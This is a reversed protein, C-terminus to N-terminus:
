EVVAYPKKRLIEEIAAVIQDRQNRCRPDCTLRGNGDTAGPINIIDGETAAAECLADFEEELEGAECQASSITSYGSAAPNCPPRIPFWLGGSESVVEFLMSPLIFPDTNQQSDAFLQDLDTQNSAADCICGDPNPCISSPCPATYSVGHEYAEEQSMCKNNSLGIGRRVLSHPEANRGVHIVHLKVGSPIYKTRIINITEEMSKSFSPFDQSCSTYSGTLECTTVGDTFVVVSNEAVEFDPDAALENYADDLVQPLNLGPDIPFLGRDLRGQLNVLSPAEVNLANRLNVFDPANNKSLPLRRVDIRASGDVAQFGAKDAETVLNMGSYIAHFMSNLPEPGDYLPPCVGVGDQCFGDILFDETRASFGDNFSLGHCRFEDYYHQNRESQPSPNCLDNARTYLFGILSHEYLQNYNWMLDYETNRDGGEFHCNNRTSCYGPCAAPMSGAFNYAYESIAQPTQSFLSCNTVPNGFAMPVHTEIHSSRSVDPIFMTHKKVAAVTATDETTTNTYGFARAFLTRLPNGQQQKLIVRMANPTSPDSSVNMERFCPEVWAGSQCPCPDDLMPDTACGPDEKYWMGPIISGNSGEYSTVTDLNDVLTHAAATNELFNKQLGINEGSIAQARIVADDLKDAPLPQASLLYAELAGAAVVEASRRQQSKTEVIVGMDVVFAIGLILIALVIVVFGIASGKEFCSRSM